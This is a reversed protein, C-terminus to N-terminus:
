PSEPVPIPIPVPVFPVTLLSTTMAPTTPDSRVTTAATPAATTPTLAATTPTPAATTPAPTTTATTATTPTTTATTPTTTATTTTTPTTTPTTTTTTATTPTTTATTPTTTATTTTRPSTTDVVNPPAVATTPEPPTQASQNHVTATEAPPGSPMLASSLPATGPKQQERESSEVSTLAIAVGGVAVLAVAAAIGFVSMPLRQWAKSDDRAALDPEFTPEVDEALGCGDATARHEGGSYPVGSYPVVDDPNDDQSWALAPASAAPAVYTAADADQRGSAAFSAAGVGADLAPQRTTVVRAQSWESLRQAILPISAGGGVIAVASVTDWSINNRGLMDELASVVVNLPREILDELEARTVRIDARRGPLDVNLETVTEISLREKASRCQERLSAFSGVAATAGADGDGDATIGELVHSLLAQDIQDGALEPIRETGDVVDFESAADALTISTGGGGFDLLAVIGSRDIGPSANLATLAAVADPILQPAVGGPALIASAGLTTQLAGLMAPSWYSPVAIVVDSTPTRSPPLSLEAMSELAEVLLQEAPYTAGDAAVLPVPDGVREVFASLVMGGAAASDERPTGVEPAAHGFLTLVSRRIVTQRGVSVAVLNTTGISLGLPESM